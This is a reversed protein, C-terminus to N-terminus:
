MVSIKDISISKIQSSCGSFFILKNSEKLINFNYILNNEEEASVIVTRGEGIVENAKHDYQWHYLKGCESSSVIIFRNCYNNDPIIKCDLLPSTENCGSINQKRFSKMFEWEGRISRKFLICGFNTLHCLVFIIKSNSYKNIILTDMSTVIQEFKEDRPNDEDNLWPLSCTQRELHNNIYLYFFNDLSVFGYIDGRIQVHNVSDMTDFNKILKMLQTTLNLRLQLLQGLKTGVIFEIAKSKCEHEFIDVSLMEDQINDLSWIFKFGTDTDSLFQLEHITNIIVIPGIEDNNVMYLNKIFLQKSTLSSSLNINNLFSTKLQKVLDYYYLQLQIKGPLFPNPSQLLKSELLILYKGEIDYNQVVIDDDISCQYLVEIDYM